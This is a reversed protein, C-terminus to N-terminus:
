KATVNIDIRRNRQRGEATANDAVPHQDGYGEASLRAPDIGFAVIQNMASTAREGSLQQNQQPNGTNDTYGGLKLTVQPYAKLIEAINRLQEQSSPKLTAAGTDFEIRDFSFWITPSIPRNADEIFALLQDEVGNVPLRLKVGNPLEREIFDGPNGAAGPAPVTAVSGPASPATAQRKSFYGLLAAIVALAIVLPLLWRRWSAAYRQGQQGIGSAATRAAGAASAAAGGLGLVGSLGGPADQLFTQPKGLLNMLGSEGSGGVRRGILGLVLPLVMSMLSKSAAPAIGAHSAVWNSVAGSKGPLVTDLLPGGTSMLNGLANPAQLADAVHEYQATDLHDRHIVDLLEHAGERTQAKSALGGLLAPLMDTLATKIKGPSEGITSAIRNLADGGFEDSVQNLLMSAAM